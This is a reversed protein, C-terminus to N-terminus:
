VKTVKVILSAIEQSVKGTPTKIYQSAFQRAKTLLAQTQPHHPQLYTKFITILERTSNAEKAVGAKLYPIFQNYDKAYPNIIVIPRDLMIAELGTMSWTIAVISSALLIEALEVTQNDSVSVNTIGWQRLQEVLLHRKETPHPKAVLVANPIEKVANSALLFFDRKEELTLQPCPRFSVLLIIKKTLNGLNLKQYIESRNFNKKLDFFHDYRPDGIINIATPKVGIKALKKATFQGTLLYRDTLDYQYTEEDFIMTRPSITFSQLHYKKALLGLSTEIFRIDGAVLIAKPKLQRILQDSAQLYLKSLILGHNFIPKFANLYQQLLLKKEQDCLSNISKELQRCIVKGTKLWNEIQNLYKKSVFSSIFSLNAEYLNYNDLYTQANQFDAIFIPCFATKELASYVPALTQLHRFFDLSLLVKNKAPKISKYTSLKFFNNIKKKMERQRFFRMLYNDVWNLNPQLIKITKILQRGAIFVALNEQSSKGLVMVSDFKKKNILRILLDYYFIYDNMLHTSIKNEWIKLLPINSFHSFTPNLRSIQQELERVAQWVLPKFKVLSDRDLIQFSYLLNNKIPLNYKLSSLLTIEYKSKYLYVTTFIKLKLFWCYFLSYIRGIKGSFSQIKVIDQTVILLRKKM